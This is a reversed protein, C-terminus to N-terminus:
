QAKVECKAPFKGIAAELADCTPQNFANKKYEYSTNVVMDKYKEGEKRKLASKGEFAFMEGTKPRVYFLMKDVFAKVILSSPTMELVMITEGDAAKEERVKKMYFTFSERRDLVAVKLKVEKGAMLEGFHPRVYAMITSPVVLYAEAEDDSTKVNGDQDTVKYYARGDKVELESKKHLVHNDIVARRVKGDKEWSEEIVQPGDPGIFSAKSYILDDQKVAENHYRGYPEVACKEGKFLSKCSEPFGEKPYVKGDIELLVEAAKAKAPPPWTPKAIAPTVLILSLCLILNTM